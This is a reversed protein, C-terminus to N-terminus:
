EDQFGKSLVLDLISYVDVSHILLDQFIAALHSLSFSLSGPSLGVSFKFERFDPGWASPSERGQYSSASSTQNGRSQLRHSRHSGLAFSSVTTITIIIM